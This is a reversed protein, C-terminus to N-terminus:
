VDTAETPLFAQLDVGVALLVAGAAFSIAFLALLIGILV